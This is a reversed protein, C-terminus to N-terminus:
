EATATDYKGEIKTEGIVSWVIEWMTYPSIPVRKLERVSHINTLGIAVADSIEFADLTKEWGEHLSAVVSRFICPTVEFTDVVSVTEYNRTEKQPMDRNDLFKALDANEIGYLANYCLTLREAVAEDTYTSRGAALEDSRFTGWMSLDPNAVLEIQDAYLPVCDEEAQEILDEHVPHQYTRLLEFAAGNLMDFVVVWHPEDFLGASNTADLLEMARGLTDAPVAVPSGEIQEDDELESITIDRVARVRMGPTINAM